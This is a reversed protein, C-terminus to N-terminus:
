GLHDELRALVRPREDVLDAGGAARRDGSEHRELVAAEDRGDDVGHACRDFAVELEAGPASGCRVRLPIKPTSGGPESDGPPATGSQATPRPRGERARGVTMRWWRPARVSGHPTEARGCPHAGM